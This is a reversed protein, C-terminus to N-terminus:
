KPAPAAPAEPPAVMFRVGGTAMPLGDLGLAAVEWIHIRGPKIAEMEKASLTLSTEATSRVLLPWVADDDSITVKYKAAGRVARWEFLEPIVPVQGRPELLTVYAAPGPPAPGQNTGFKLLVLFLVLGALLLGIVLLV